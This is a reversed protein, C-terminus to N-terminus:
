PAVARYFWHTGGQVDNDVVTSPTAGATVEQLFTWTRLDSSREVRYRAGPQGELALRFSATLPPASLISLRAPRTQFTSRDAVLRLFRHPHDSTPSADTVWVVDALAGSQGVELNSPIDVWRVLDDSAQLGLHVSSAARTRNLEFGVYSKGETIMEIAFPLGTTTANTPNTGLVFELLNPLRDGDPDSGALNSGSALKYSATWSSFADAATVVVRTVRSLTTGIPNRIRLQYAADDTARAPNFLLSDSTAGPIPSGNKLWQYELVPTGTVVARLEGSAGEALLLDAPETTLSPPRVSDSQNGYLVGLAGGAALDGQITTSTTAHFGAPVTQSLTLAGPAVGAFLFSGDGSTITEAAVSGGRLLTIRVGGQGPESPGAVGDGNEDNFVRGSVTGGARNAFNATAAGGSALTVTAAPTLTVYGPLATQGVRYTGPPLSAITYVGGGTTVASAVLNGTDPHRVEITVGGLGPDGASPSGDGDLDNYVVGSLRGVVNNGFSVSAAGGDALQVPKTVSSPPPENGQLAAGPPVGNITLVTYSSPVSQRVQYSGAPVDAFVYLGDGSTTTEGVQTADDARLLALRVGGIGPEGADARGNGNTDEFVIGSITQVPQDGFSAAASGGSTLSVARVNPTTSVFGAPDTEEVTYNGPVLAPFQYSGDGASFTTRTGDAGTARITVGGIGNEGADRLGNGNADSFVLGALTGAAQDGFRTSASGGSGITISRLNPTTSSYGAPDIEEVSYAGPAVELFRFVGDGSTVTNRQGAAGTLRVAVGPLGPEGPEQQGNGNIDEYVVGGVTGAAQDGFSANASGGSSLSVTRLNPTTSTFGLPDTEEVSYTGPTTGPFQYSGDGSTTTTRQGVSGSLRITVGGIGAEGPDRSGDGNTDEFVAGAITGAAQDGFSANASGGAAVSVSRANPTTSSYGLPDTEEVSYSGPTVFTFLYSGDGSTTTTRQGTGDMLRISVGGIGPEGSDRLGNGDLDHFVIGSVTGAPQDGFSLGLSGGPPLHISRLNPTTSVYGTPDTEEVTYAGPAVDTFQFSGSADTAATRQGSLGALKLTVGPVGPEGADPAGNGNRDEFVRGSISGVPQDGFNATAAAGALSISRVNPTTSAYGAPDTEELTYVGPVLGSFAYSGDAASVRTISTGGGTLRLSVGALGTESADQNGNGNLDIFVVGGITGTLRDGFRANAAGGPPISVTRLNPTTSAFGAPDTEEVTYTGPTLGEFAFSGDTATTTPRPAGTGSLTVVVGALGREGDDRIGDGDLDEFVIGTVTGVRQDGFDTTTTAQSPVLVSRLDPTTSAYGQPNTERVYYPGAAVARLAYAGTTDTTTSRLETTGDAGLLTIPVSALGPEGANRVGDSNLDEFVVGALNVMGTIRLTGTTIGEYNPALVRAEVAYSGEALPPNPGGDYSILPEGVPVNPTITLSVRKPSGDFVQDLGGLSLTLRARAVTLVATGTGTYNPHNVTGVMQYSGADVPPVTAGGYTLLVPVGQVGSQATVVRPTTDYVQQLGQFVISLVGKEVVLNQEVALAPQFVADGPQSARIRVTGAGTPTLVNGVLSAPGSVISLGVPLGSSASATLTVPGAGFRVPAPATFTITQPRRDVRVPVAPSDATGVLNRVRVWFSTPTALPRSLFVPLDQGVPISPQGPIGEFWEYHLPASGAAVVELQVSDGVLLPLPATITNITPPDHVDLQVPLSEALGLTNRVRVLYLGVDSPTAPNFELIPSTKGTLELGNRVWQYTPEPIANAVVTLRAPKGNTAVTAVPATLIVPATGLQLHFAELGVLYAPLTPPSGANGTVLELVKSLGVKSNRAVAEEFTEGATSEWVRVQVFARGGPPITPISREEAPIYGAAIGTRFPVPPGVPALRDATPAAYLQALYAPGELLTTGDLDSVPADVIGTVKTAFNVTGNTPRFAASVTKHADMTVNIPIVSGSVAGGWSSFAYGPEPQPRLSVVTGPNYAPGPPTAEIGGGRGPSLTLAYQVTVTAAPATVTGGPGSVRVAYTGRSASALDLVPGSAGPIPTSDLFWDFALPASGVAIVELKLPRGVVPTGTVNIRTIATPTLLALRAPSSEVAGLSNRIRVTYDGVDSASVGVKQYTPGTAGLIERGGLVWQYTLPALGTAAVEFVATAGPLVAISLPQRTITPPAGIRLQFSRLGALVAPLTPPSGANGTVVTFPESAGIPRGAQVAAEYTAGDAVKWARVQVLAPQGPAIGPMSREEGPFYGAGIGTRFAIPAGVPALTGPSTGAYLQAVATGNLPTSGDVDFVPADLTGTILNVFNVTGGTPRFSAGVTKHADMVLSAPTTTGSLDGTWGTFAYGPDAIASVAVPTGATYSPLAPTALLTGGRGPELTLVFGNVVTAVDRRTVGGPGTVRAAYTGLSAAGIELTSSAAGAIPAGNLFWAYTFPGPGEVEIEVRLARGVIPPNPSVLVSVISPPTGQHLRFSELGVPVAPLTPPSGANGTILSLVLSEGIRGGAAAAAEYTAGDATRWARVQIFARQGGSVMPLVREEGPFYGIGADSRFTVPPGVQALLNSVTGAYLAAQYAGNLLTTGDLDYVPADLTGTIRNVFNVTGATTRFAAGVTRHADMVLTAPSATGSLDGTWGAFEYGPEATATLTVTAGSAYTAQSPSARLSGGRSEELTLTYQAVVTVVDRATTGGPGTVRISYTGPEAAALDLTAGTAGPLPNGSRLWQFTFPGTGSVAVELHLPKGFQPPNPSVTVGTISPLPAIALSVPASEVGGHTNSVFVTYSGADSAAVTAIQLVPGTAGPLVAGAKRWQYSLPPSGAAVVEFRATGGLGTVVSVPQTVIRAPTATQLQFARLGLLVSPLSPPSGFNGTVVTFVLSEGAKAGKALAAEHTPGDALRWAKVQVFATGGPPVSPIVREEGPFYGVGLGSRFAIPPGIQVLTSASAGGYLAAVYADDLKTVGDADFVPADLTGTIRNVFNVTGGTPGFIPTVTKHGDMTLTLPNETGSADGAWGNFAYGPDAKATLTVRTGASYSARTPSVDVSGGRLSSLTLIFDPVVTVVDRRVTGGPGTVKVSFTGAEAASRELISATAGPLDGNNLQWQYTIPGTGTATVELRLARGILPPNPSILVATISPLPAITLSVPTTVVSGFPNTIRVSYNGADGAAVSNFSLSAGTAGNIANNNKLWQYSLPPPGGAVVRFTATGGIGTLVAVPATVVVPPSVLQLQFSRLGLLAAPPVLGGGTGGTFIASVGTKGGAAQAAEYTSGKTADWARVQLKATGGEPVGPLTRTSGATGDIYGAGAGTRFPLSAGVMALASDPSSAPAAYLAARFGTGALRTSGDTDFVPADLTGTIRNVFNVTGQGLAALLSGWLILVILPAKM